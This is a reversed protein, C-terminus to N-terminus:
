VLTKLHDRGVVISKGHVQHHQEKFQDGEYYGVQHPNGIM